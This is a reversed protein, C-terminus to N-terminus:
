KGLQLAVDPLVHSFKEVSYVLARFSTSVPALYLTQLSQEAPCLFSISFSPLPSDLVPLSVAALSLLASVLRLASPLELNM